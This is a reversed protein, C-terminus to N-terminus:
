EEGIEEFKQKNNLLISVVDVVCTSFDEEAVPRYFVNVDQKFDPLLSSILKRYSLQKGSSEFCFNVKESICALSISIKAKGLSFSINGYSDLELPYDANHLNLIVKDQLEKQHEEEIEDKIEEIDSLHTELEEIADNIEDEREKLYELKEEYSLGDIAENIDIKYFDVM